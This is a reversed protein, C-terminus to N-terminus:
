YSSKNIIQVLGIGILDHLLRYVDSITRGILRALEEVSRRGDILLVVQRHLRSLGKQEITRLVHPLPMSLFPLGTALEQETPMGFRPLPGSTPHSWLGNYDEHVPRAGKPLPSTVRSSVNIPALTNPAPTDPTPTDRSLFVVSSDPALFTVLCNEWASMRNFAETGSYHGTRTEAIRGNTFVMRGEEIFAGEGRRAILTGTKRSLQLTQIISILHATLIGDQPM